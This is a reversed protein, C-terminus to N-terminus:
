GWCQCCPTNEIEDFSSYLLWVCQLSKISKVQTAIRGTDKGDLVPASKQSTEHDSLCQLFAAVATCGSNTRIEDRLAADVSLFTDNWLEAIPRRTDIPRDREKDM